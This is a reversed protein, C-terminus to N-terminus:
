NFPDTPDLSFGFAEATEETNVKPERQMLQSKLSLILEGLDCKPEVICATKLATDSLQLDNMYAEKRALADDLICKRLVNLRKIENDEFTNLVNSLTDQYLQHVISEDREARELEERSSSIEESAASIDERIKDDVPLGQAQRSEAATLVSSVKQNTTTHKARAKSAATEAKKWEKQAKKENVEMQKKTVRLDTLLNEMTPIIDDRLTKAYREHERIQVNISNRVADWASRFSSQENTEGFLSETPIKKLAAVFTEEAYARAEYFALLDKCTAKGQKSKSLVLDYADALDSQFSLTDM